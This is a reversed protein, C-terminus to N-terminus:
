ELVEKVTDVAGMPPRTSRRLLQSEITQVLDTIRTPPRSQVGGGKHSMPGRSKAGSQRREPFDEDESSTLPKTLNALGRSNGQRQKSNRVLFNRPQSETATAPLRACSTSEQQGTGKEDSSSYVGKSMFNAKSADNQASMFTPPNKFTKFKGTSPVEYLWTVDTTGEMLKQAAMCDTQRNIRNRVDFFKKNKKALLRRDSNLKRSRNRCITDTVSSKFNLGKNSLKDCALDKVEEKLADILNPTSRVASTMREKTQQSEHPFPQPLDNAKNEEKFPSSQTNKAYVSLYHEPIFSPLKCLTKGQFLIRHRPTPVPVSLTSQPFRLPSASLAESCPRTLRVANGQPCPLGMKAPATRSMLLSKSRRRTGVAASMQSHLSPPQLAGVPGEMQSLKSLFILDQSMADMRRLFLQEQQALLMGVEQKQQQLQQSLRELGARDGCPAMSVDAAPCRVAASSAQATVHGDDHCCSDAGAPANKIFLLDCNRQLRDLRILLEERVSILLAIQPTPFASDQQRETSASNMQLLSKLEQIDKQLETPDVSGPCQTFIGQYCSGTATREWQALLADETPAPRDPHRRVVHAQLYPLSLFVKQCYPCPAGTATLKDGKLMELQQNEIIRKRKRNERQLQRIAEQDCLRFKREEELSLSTEALQSEVDGLSQLLLEQSHMLYEICLQALKFLKLFNTDVLCGDLENDIDCFTLHAVNNQLTEVDVERAVKDVDVSAIKRWDIKQSRSHFQFGHLSVVPHVPAADTTEQGQQM